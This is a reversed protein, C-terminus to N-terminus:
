EGKIFCTAHVVYTVHLLWRLTNYLITKELFKFSLVRRVRLVYTM